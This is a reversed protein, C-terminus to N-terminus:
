QERRNWLKAIKSEPNDDFFGYEDSMPSRCGCGKCWFFCRYYDDGQYMSKLAINKSGCFPCPKIGHRAMRQKQRKIREEFDDLGSIYDDARFGGKSNKRPKPPFDHDNTRASDCMQEYRQEYDM